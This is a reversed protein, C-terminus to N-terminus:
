CTFEIPNPAARGIFQKLSSGIIDIWEPIYYGNLFGPQSMPFTELGEHTLKLRTQDGEAFLEFSVLSYGSFGEYRWSYTLKRGTVVETIKCLHLYCVDEKGAEFRFEFDLEPRFEPVDFFWQKLQDKDTIAKWVAEMPANFLREIVLPASNM